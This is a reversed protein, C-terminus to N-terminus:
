MPKKAVNYVAEKSVTIGPLPEGKQNKGTSAYLRLTSIKRSDVLLTSNPGNGVFAFSDGRYFYAHTYPLHEFEYKSVRIAPTIKHRKLKAVVEDANHWFHDVCIPASSLYSIVGDPLYAGGTLFVHSPTWNWLMEFLENHCTSPTDMLTEGSVVM